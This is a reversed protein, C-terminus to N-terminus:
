NFDAACLDIILGFLANCVVGTFTAFIYSYLRENQKALEYLRRPARTLKLTRWRRIRQEQSLRHYVKSARAM